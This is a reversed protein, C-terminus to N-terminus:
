AIDFVGGIAQGEAGFSVSNKFCDRLSSPFERPDGDRRIRFSQRRRAAGATLNQPLKAAIHLERQHIRAALGFFEVQFIQEWPGEIRRKQLKKKAAATSAASDASTM